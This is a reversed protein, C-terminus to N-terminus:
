LQGRRVCLSFRQSKLNAAAMQTTGSKPQVLPGASLRPLDNAAQPPPLDKGLLSRSPAERM